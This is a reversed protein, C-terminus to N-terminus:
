ESEEKEVIELISAGANHHNGRLKDKHKTLQRALKDELKDIATYLDKDDAKAVFESGPVIIIAEAVQNGKEVTLIVKTSSINDFYLGVKGIKEDVYSKIASTVEIHRGTIQINM